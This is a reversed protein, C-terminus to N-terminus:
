FAILTYYFTYFRTCEGTVINTKRDMLTPLFTAYDPRGGVVEVQAHSNDTEVGAGLLLDLTAARMEAPDVNRATVFITVKLRGKSKTTEPSIERIMEIEGLKGNEKIDELKDNEVPAKNAKMVDHLAEIIEREAWRIWDLSRICWILHVTRTRCLKEQSSLPNHAASRMKSALYSVWPLSATIGSGGSICVVGHYKTDFAPHCDGYPGDIWSRTAIRLKQAEAIATLRDVSQNSLNSRTALEAVAKTFGKLARVLLVVENRGHVSNPWSLSVITFPHSQMMSIGPISIFCHQGPQWKFQHPAHVVIRTVGGPLVELETPFGHVFETLSLAVRNRYIM